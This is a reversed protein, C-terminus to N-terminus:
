IFCLVYKAINALKPMPNPFVKRLDAVNSQPPRQLTSKSLGNNNTSVVRAIQNRNIAASPNLRSVVGVKSNSQVSNSPQSILKLTPISGQRSIKPVPQPPNTIRGVVKNINASSTPIPAQRTISTSSPLRSVSLASNNNLKNIEISPKQSSSPTIMTAPTFKRAHIVPLSLRQVRKTPTITVENTPLNPSLHSKAAASQPPTVNTDGTRTGSKMSNTRKIATLTPRNPATRNPSQPLSIRNKVSNIQQLQNHAAKMLPENQSLDFAKKEPAKPYVIGMNFNKIPQASQKSSTAPVPKRDLARNIANVDKVIINPEPSNRNGALTISLPLQSTQLNQSPSGKNHMSATTRTISLSNPADITTRSISSSNRAERSPSSRPTSLINGGVSPSSRATHTINVGGVSPSSRSAMSPSGRASLLPSARAVMLSNGKPSAMPKNISSSGSHSSHASSHHRQNAQNMVNSMDSRSVQMSTPSVSMQGTHNGASTNTNARQVDKSAKTIVSTPISFSDKANSTSPPLLNSLLPNKIANPGPQNTASQQASNTSNAGASSNYLNYAAFPSASSSPRSSTSLAAQNSTGSLGTYAPMFRALNSYQAAVAAAAAASSSASSLSSVGNFANSNTYSSSSSTTIPPLSTKYYNSTASPSNYLPNANASSSSNYMASLANYNAASGGSPNFQSYMQSM